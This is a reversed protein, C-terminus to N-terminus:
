DYGIGEPGTVLSERIRMPEGNGDHVYRLSDALTSVAAGLLVM